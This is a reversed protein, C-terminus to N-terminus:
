FEGPSPKDLISFDTFNDQTDIGELRSLSQGAKADPAPEGELLNLGAESVTVAGQGYTVADWIQGSEGRLVIADPGNQPDFHDLQDYELVRSERTSNTRLDAIVYLGSEDLSNDPDLTIVDTVAGNSGNVLLLEFGKLSGGPTGYLEIFAEGDKESDLGDYLFENIVLFDPPPPLGRSDSLGSEGGLKGPIGVAYRALFPEPSSGPRQNFPVGKVSMLMPTVVLYYFGEALEARTEVKLTQEDGMLEFRLPEFRLEEDALDEILEAFDDLYPSLDIEPILFISYEDLSDWAIRQSFELQVQFPNNVSSNEEPSAKLVKPQKLHLSQFNEAEPAVCAGLSICFILLFGMLSSFKM